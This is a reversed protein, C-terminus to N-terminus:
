TGVRDIRPVQHLSIFSALVFWQPANVLACEPYQGQFAFGNIRAQLM